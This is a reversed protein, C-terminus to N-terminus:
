PTVEAMEDPEGGGPHESEEGLLKWIVTTLTVWDALRPRVM